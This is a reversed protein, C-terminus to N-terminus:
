EISEREREGLVINRQEELSHGSSTHFPSMSMVHRIGAYHKLAKVFWLFEPLSCFCVEHIMGNRNNQVWFNFPSWKSCTPNLVNIACTITVKHSQLIAPM